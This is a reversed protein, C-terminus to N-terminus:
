KDWCYSPNPAWYKICEAFYPGIPPTADHITSPETCPGDDCTLDDKYYDFLSVIEQYKIGGSYVYAPLPDAVEGLAIEAVEGSSSYAINWTSGCQVAMDDLGDGDYDAPLPRCYLGEPMPSPESGTCSPGGTCNIYTLYTWSGDPYKFGFEALVNSDKFGAITFYSDNDPIQYASQAFSSTKFTDTSKKYYTDSVHNGNTIGDPSKALLDTSGGIVPLWAWGPAKTLSDSTLYTVADEFTGLKDIYVLTDSVFRIGDFGGYDIAWTGDPTQLTLDAWYDSNIDGALPRSYKKWAPDTSYDIIRDWTMGQQEQGSTVLWRDSYRIYWKGNLSNYLALDARGDSNYDYVVPFLMGQQGTVNSADLVLDWEGYGNDGCTQGVQLDPNCPTGSLDIYWKHDRSFSILDARGDGDMDYNIGATVFKNYPAIKLTAGSYIYDEVKDIATAADPQVGINCNPNPDNPTQGYVAGQGSDALIDRMEKSDLYFTKGVYGADEILQRAYSQVLAAIGAIEAAAASTGGFRATYWKNEDNADLQSTEPKSDYSWSGDPCIYVIKVSGAAYEPYASVLAYLDKITGTASDFGPAGNAEICITKTQDANTLKLKPALGYDGYGATVVGSGWAFVDVRDGCNSWPAKKKDAGLSAGVMISGSDKGPKNFNSFDGYIPTALEDNNLDIGGNGAGEVIIKGTKTANDIIQWRYESAEFPVCGTVSASTTADEVTCGNPSTTTIGMTQIEILLISGIPVKLVDLDEAFMSEDVMAGYEDLHIYAVKSSTKPAIGKIALSMDNGQGSVIGLVATGHNKSDEGQTLEGWSLWEEITPSVLYEGTEDIPIIEHEFNWNHEQDITTTNEGRLGPFKADIKAWADEIGLGGGSASGLYTQGASLDPTSVVTLYFEPLIEAYEVSPDARLKQIIATADGANPIGIYYALNMDHLKVGRGQWYTLSRELEDEPVRTARNIGTLRSDYTTLLSNITHTDTDALSVFKASPSDAEPPPGDADGARLRIGTGEKFKVVIKGTYSDTAALSQSDSFQPDDTQFNLGQETDTSDGGCGILLTTATVFVVFVKSPKM